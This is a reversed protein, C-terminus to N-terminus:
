IKVSEYVPPIFVYMYTSFSWPVIKSIFASNHQIYTKRKTYSYMVKYYGLIKKELWIM